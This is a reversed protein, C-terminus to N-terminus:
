NTEGYVFQVFQKMTNCRLVFTNEEVSFAPTYFSPKLVISISVRHIKMADDQPFYNGISETAFSVNALSTFNVSVQHVDSFTKELANLLNQSRHNIDVFDICDSTTSDRRLRFQGQRFYIFNELADRVVNNTWFQVTHENFVQEVSGATEFLAPVTIVHM